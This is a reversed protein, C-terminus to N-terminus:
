TRNAADSRFFLLAAWSARIDAIDWFALTNPHMSAISFAEQDCHLQVQYITEGSRVVVTTPKNLFSTSSLIL